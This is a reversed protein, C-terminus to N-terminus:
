RLRSRVMQHRLSPSPFVLCALRDQIHLFPRLCTTFHLFSHLSVQYMPNRSSIRSPLQYLVLFFIHHFSSLTQFRANLGLFDLGIDTVGLGIIIHAYFLLTHALLSGCFLVNYPRLSFWFCRRSLHINNRTFIVVLIPPFFFPLSYFHPIMMEDCCFDLGNQM